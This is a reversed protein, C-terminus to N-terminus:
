NESAATTKSEIEVEVVPVPSKEEQILRKAGIYRQFYYPAELSDITIKKSLSSAHIFLNNGLYIGVHSPFSAYTKFFVLDGTVLKDREVTQGVTFQERASRPITIGAFSYAKQVYASCDLGFAGTGGFRYPMHIMKKAFLILRDKIGLKSLDESKSLERVEELKMLAPSPAANQYAVTLSRADERGERPEPNRKKTLFLKQGPKLTNGELDNIEKLVRVSMGFRRAVKKVTDGKKATYIRLENNRKVMLQQGPKVKGRKLGNLEKLEDVSLSYKRAITHLTEGKKVVHYAPIVEDSRKEDLSRRSSASRVGQKRSSGKKEALASKKSSEQKIDPIILKTGASVKKSTLGNAKKIQSVSLHYKQAIKQLTDGKKVTYSTSASSSVSFALFVLVVFFLTECTKRVGNGGKGEPCM